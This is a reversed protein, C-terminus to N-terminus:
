RGYVATFTAKGLSNQKLYAEVMAGGTEAKLPVRDVNLAYMTFVYRHPKDGQPPCPGGYGPADFDTVSQTSGKPALGGNPKGAGTALKNAAAPINFIVWHWWGSGPADPDFVTIAFSKTNKPANQWNLEPSINAGTCGFGNYVQERGIMGADKVLPSSIRFEAAFVSVAALTLIMAFLIRPMKQEKILARVHFLTKGRWDALEKIRADILRSPLEGKTTASKKM